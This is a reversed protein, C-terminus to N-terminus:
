NTKNEVGHVESIYQICNSTFDHLEDYDAGSLSRPIAIVEGTKDNVYERSYFMRKLHMKADYEDFGRYGETRFIEALRPFVAVHLFAYMRTKPAEDLVKLEGIFDTPTYYKNSLIGILSEFNLVSM